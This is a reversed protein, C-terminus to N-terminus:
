LEQKAMDLILVNEIDNSVQGINKLITARITEYNDYATASDLIGPENSLKVLTTMINDRLKPEISFLNNQAGESTELNINIIVLSAVRKDRMVPVVFERSFKFYGKDSSAAKETQVKTKPKDGYAASEGTPAGKDAASPLLFNALFSGGIVAIVVLLPTAFKMM